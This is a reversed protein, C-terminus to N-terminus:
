FKDVCEIQYFHINIFIMTYPVILVRSGCFQVKFLSYGAHVHMYMVVKVSNYLTIMILAHLQM